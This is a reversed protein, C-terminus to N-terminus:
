RRSTRHRASPRRRRRRRGRALYASINVFDENTMNTVVPKMLAGMPGNRAGSQFDFLQRAIYSPSRAAISPINPQIGHLDGGHCVTCAIIGRAPDGNMVLAQGKAVSGVPVYAIFGTARAACRRSMNSTRLRRSSACASRSWAPTRVKGAAAVHGGPQADEASPRKRVRPDVADVEDLRLVCRIGADGADTMAKAFNIMNNTNNKRPDASRRLGNKMDMLQQMTYGAPQSARPLTRRVDRAPRCTASRARSSTARTTVTPSSGRCRRITAPIGTPRLM